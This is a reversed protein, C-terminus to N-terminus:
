KTIIVRQTKLALGDVIFRLMYVGENLNTIETLLQSNDITAQKSTILAGLMNYVEITLQKGIGTYNINFSGSNPNPYVIIQNNNDIVQKIGVTSVNSIKRIRNNGYDSIYLNDHIDFAISSPNSLQAFLPSNGDGNYGVAGTGAITNIVGTNLDVRRIVNNFGDAIFINGITDTKVDGPSYLAALTASGGDGSYSQTGNGAVTTIIDTLYNVKRIVSSNADAIYLNNQKDFCLEEIGNFQALTALGGDGSYGSSGNGAVTKIVGTTFDIKRIVYNGQDAIYLNGFPDLAIHRPSSLKASTASGGDGTYGAIGNGAITSIIGSIDIKRIVQNGFDAIYLDGITDFAVGTPENLNANTAQGGNGNYGQIGNGAITTIIGTSTNIKRIRHNGADAIFINGLRDITNENIFTFEATTAPINDGNYGSSGNGAITTIICQANLNFLLLQMAVIAKLTYLIFRLM